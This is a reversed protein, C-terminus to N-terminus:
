ALTANPMFILVPIFTWARELGANHTFTAPDPNAKQNYRVICWVLLATVFLSILTIIVLLVNDLWVIDRMSKTVAPQFGTLGQEPKGIIPLEQAVASGATFVSALGAAIWSSITQLRM